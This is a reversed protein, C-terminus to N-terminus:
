AALYQGKKALEVLIGLGGAFDVTIEYGLAQKIRSLDALSARVDGPRPDAFEAEAEVGLLGGLLRLLDLLDHSAGSAVNFVQGAVGPTHCAALNAQVVNDIYTFDRSQKGDGFIVPKEGAMLRFLFKPIVAAYDSNPDQRAGFVNFYRLSVTELGYARHIAQLYNEVSLKSAAYPSMPRPDMDERKPALPDKRDGYISSSSASVMRKVGADKAAIMVNLSGNVNVETTLAPNEMSRQVSARAAQHLVYDAGQMAKQCDELNRIDGNIFELSGPGQQAPLLNEEKGTALNDLVTVQQGQKVLTEALHSGIFGAGGTIVYKPM